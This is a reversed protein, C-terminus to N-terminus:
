SSRICAKFIVLGLPVVVSHFFGKQSVPIATSNQRITEEIIDM